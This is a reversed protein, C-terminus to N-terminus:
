QLANYANVAWDSRTLSLWFGTVHVGNMHLWCIALAGGALTLLSIIGVAALAKVAAPTYQTRENIICQIRQGGTTRDPHMHTMPRLPSGTNGEWAPASPQVLDIAGKTRSFHLQMQPVMNGTDLMGMTDLLHTYDEDMMAGSPPATTGRAVYHMLRGHDILATGHPQMGHERLMAQVWAHQTDGQRM